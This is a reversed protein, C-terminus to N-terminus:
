DGQVINIAIVFFTNSPHYILCKISSVTSQLSISQLSYVTSQLSISQQSYVSLSNVTSQYVTSQQSISQYVTSQLSYVTPQLSYVTSQLSNVTSQYVTSQYIPIAAVSSVSRTCRPRLSAPGKHAAM